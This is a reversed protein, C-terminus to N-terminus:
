AVDCFYKACNKNNTDKDIGIERKSTRESTREKKRQQVHRHTQEVM